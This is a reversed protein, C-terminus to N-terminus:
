SPHLWGLCYLNKCSEVQRKLLTPGQPRLADIPQCRRTEHHHAYSIRTKTAEPEEILVSSYITAEGAKEPLIVPVTYTGVEHTIMIM